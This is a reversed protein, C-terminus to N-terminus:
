ALLEVEDDEHADEIMQAMRQEGEVEDVFMDCFVQEKELRQLTAGCCDRGHGFVVAELVRRYELIWAAWAHIEDLVGIRAIWCVPPEGILSTNLGHQAARSEADFAM